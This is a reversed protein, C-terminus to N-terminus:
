SSLGQDRPFEAAPLFFTTNRFLTFELLTARSDMRIRPRAADFVVPRVTFRDVFYLVCYFTECEVGLVQTSGSASRCRLPLLADPKDLERTEYRLNANLRVVSTLYFSRTGSCVNTCLRQNEHRKSM